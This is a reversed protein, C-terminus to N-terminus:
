ASRCLDRDREPDARKVPTPIRMRNVPRTARIAERRAIARLRDREVKRRAQDFALSARRKERQERTLKPAPGLNVCYIVGDRKELIPQWDSVARGSESRSRHCRRQLRVRVRVSHRRQTWHLGQQPSARAPVIRVERSVTWRSAHSWASDSGATYVSAACACIADTTPTVGCCHMPRVATSARAGPVFGAGCTGRFVPVRRVDRM